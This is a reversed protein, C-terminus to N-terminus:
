GKAFVWLTDSALANENGLKHITLVALEGNIKEFMIKPVKGEELQSKLTEYDLVSLLARHYDPNVTEHIYNTFLKSFHEEKENYKLYAPMLIRSAMDTDLSVRYIGNHTEPLVSLLADIEAIGTKTQLFETEVDKEPNTNKKNQYHLSTLELSSNQPVILSIEKDGDKYNMM